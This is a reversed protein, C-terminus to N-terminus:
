WAKSAKILPSGMVGAGQGQYGGQLEIICHRGNFRCRLWGGCCIHIWSWSRTLGISGSRNFTEVTPNLIELFVLGDQDSQASIARKDFSQNRDCPSTVFAEELVLNLSSSAVM